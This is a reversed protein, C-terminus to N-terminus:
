EAMRFPFEEKDKKDQQEENIKLQENTPQENKYRKEVKEEVIDSPEFTLVYRPPLKLEENTRPNRAVRASRHQVKFTGFRRIEVRGAEIAGDIIGDLVRQVIKRAESNPLSFEKSIHRILDVKTRIPTDVM